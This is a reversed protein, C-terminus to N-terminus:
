SDSPTMVGRVCDGLWEESKGESLAFVWRALTAPSCTLVFGNFELFAILAYAATRKNGDVFLQGEAIGHSLVAGQLALDAEQYFAYQRPRALASHLGELNRVRDLAQEPTEGFLRAHARLVDRMELYIVEEPPQMTVDSRFQTLTPFSRALTMVNLSISHKKGSLPLETLLKM